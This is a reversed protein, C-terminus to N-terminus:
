RSKKRRTWGLAYSIVSATFAAGGLISADNRTSDWEAILTILAALALLGIVIVLGVRPM